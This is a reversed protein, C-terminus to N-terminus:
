ATSRGLGEGTQEWRELRLEFTMAEPPSEWIKDHLGERTSRQGMLQMM